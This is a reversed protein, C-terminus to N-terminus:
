TKRQENVPNEAIFLSLNTTDGQADETLAALSGKQLGEFLINQNINIKM